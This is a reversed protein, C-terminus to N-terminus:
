WCHSEHTVQYHLNYTKVPTVNFRASLLSLDSLWHWWAWFLWRQHWTVQQRLSGMVSYNTMNRWPQHINSTTEHLHTLRKESSHRSIGDRVLHNPFLPLMETRGWYKVDLESVCLYRSVITFGNDTTRNVHSFWDNINAHVVPVTRGKTKWKKQSQFHHKSTKNISQSAKAEQSALFHLFRSYTVKTKLITFQFKSAQLPLALQHKISLNAKRQTWFYM